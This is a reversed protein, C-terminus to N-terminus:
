ENETEEQKSFECFDIQAQAWIEAAQFCGPPNPFFIGQMKNGHEDEDMIPHCLNVFIERAVQLTIDRKLSDM